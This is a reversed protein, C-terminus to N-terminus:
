LNTPIAPITNTLVTNVYIFVTGTFTPRQDPNQHWCRTILDMTLTVIEDPGSIASLEPRKGNVILKIHDSCKVEVVLLARLYTRMPGYTFVNM